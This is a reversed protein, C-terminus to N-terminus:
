DVRLLGLFTVMFAPLDSPQRSTVLNGDLVVEQDLYLGGANVLDDKIAMFGTVKRGRVIGASILVWGGHCISAIPKRADDMKKVLSLVDKCRRLFDPAFGGPIVIGMLEEADVDRAALEAKLTLSSKAQYEKAEAGILPVKFGAELLRYYPYIVEFENFLDAILLGVKM